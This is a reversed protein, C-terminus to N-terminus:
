KKLIHKLILMLFVLFKRTCLYNLDGPLGFFVFKIVMSNWENEYGKVLVKHTHTDGCSCLPGRYYQEWDYQKKGLLLSLLMYARIPLGSLINSKM